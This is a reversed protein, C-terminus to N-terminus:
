IFFDEVTGCQTAFAVVADRREALAWFRVPCPQIRRLLSMYCSNKIKAVLVDLVPIIRRILWPKCKRGAKLSMVSLKGKPMPLRVAGTAHVPGLPALGVGFHARVAWYSQIKAM